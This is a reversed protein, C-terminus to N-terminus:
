SPPRPTTSTGGSRNFSKASSRNDARWWETAIVFQAPIEQLGKLLNAWTQAPPEKLTLAQVFYNDLRLHDRHCELSSGCAQFDVFQDFALSAAEAKYPAYNLL